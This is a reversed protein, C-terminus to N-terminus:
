YADFACYRIVSVRCDHCEKRQAWVVRDDRGNRTQYPDSWLKWRHLGILCLFRM